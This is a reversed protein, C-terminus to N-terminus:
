LLRRYAQEGYRIAAPWAGVRLSGTEAGAMLADADLDRFWATPLARARDGLHECLREFRRVAVRDPRERDATLLEASHNLIVFVSRGQAVARDMAQALEQRSSSGVQAHRERGLVDRYVTQPVELVGDFRCPTDGLGPAIPGRSGAPNHSSDMPIGMRALARLTARDAGYAGARFATISPAGADELWERALSIVDFQAEESLERVSMRPPGPLRDHGSRGMWETHLHLQVEQGAELVMGVVDALAARGMVCAFLPEIFFVGKLGHTNLTQLQFPLGVAGGPTEGGIYRRFARNMERPSLDWARPWLEVDTTILIQM